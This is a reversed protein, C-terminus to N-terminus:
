GQRPLLERAKQIALLILLQKHPLAGPLPLAHSWMVSAWPVQTVPPAQATVECPPACGCLVSCVRQAESLTCLTAHRWLQINRVGSRLQWPGSPGSFGAVAGSVKWSAPLVPCARQAQPVSGGDTGRLGATRSVWSPSVRGLHVWTQNHVYRGATCVPLRCISM